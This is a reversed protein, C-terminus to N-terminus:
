ISQNIQTKRKSSYKGGGLSLKCCTPFTINSPSFFFVQLNLVYHWTWWSSMALCIVLCIVPFILVFSNIVRGSDLKIHSSSGQSLKGHLVSPVNRRTKKKWPTGYMLDVAFDWNSTLKIIKIWFTNWTIGSTTFFSITGFMGWSWQSPAWSVGYICGQLCHWM